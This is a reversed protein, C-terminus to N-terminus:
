IGKLLNSIQNSQRKSPIPLSSCDYECVVRCQTQEPKTAGRILTIQRGELIHQRALAGNLEDALTKM